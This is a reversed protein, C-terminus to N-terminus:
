ESCPRVIAACTHQQHTHTPPPTPPRWSIHDACCLAKSSFLEQPIMIAGFPCLFTLKIGLCAFTTIIILIVGPQKVSIIM